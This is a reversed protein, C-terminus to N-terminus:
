LCGPSGNCPPIPSLEDKCVGWVGAPALCNPPYCPHPPNEFPSEEALIIVGLSSEFLRRAEGAVFRVRCFGSSLGGM